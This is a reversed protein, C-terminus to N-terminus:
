WLLEMESSKALFGAKEYIPRGDETAHLWIRGISAEIVYRMLEQLLATALGQGRWQPLTYMNLVYAEKGSLNRPSPPREFLALGSTAVILQDNEAVWALFTGQMLSQTLYARTAEGVEVMPVSEAHEDLEEFLLLRLRVLQEIDDSTARRIPLM